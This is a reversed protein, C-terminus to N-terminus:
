PQALVCVSVRLSLDAEAPLTFSTSVPYEPARASVGALLLPRHSPPLFHSPFSTVWRSGGLTAINASPPIGDECFPPCM